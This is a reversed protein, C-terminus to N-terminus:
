EQKKLVEKLLKGWKAHEARFMADFEQPTSPKPEVGVKSLAVRVEETVLIERVAKNVEAVIEPPMRAPGWLAFWTTLDLDPYGAETATPVNPMSALRKKSGVMLARIRGADVFSQVQSATGTVLDIEGSMVAVAAPGGGKYPVHTMKIGTVSQFLEGALHDSGGVGSSGYNLKGPQQKAMAILDALTRFPLNPNVAIVNTALSLTSIPTFDQLVDYPVKFMLPASIMGVHYVLLTYGDPAAKAVYAAGITGGAGPMNLVVFPTGLRATLKESVIRAIIDTGGGPSFGVVVKVPRTPYDVAAALEPTLCASVTLSVLLLRRFRTLATEEGRSPPTFHIREIISACARKWAESARKMRSAPTLNVTIYTLRINM